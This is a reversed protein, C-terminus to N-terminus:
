PMAFKQNKERCIAQASTNLEIDSLRNEDAKGEEKLVSTIMDVDWGWKSL